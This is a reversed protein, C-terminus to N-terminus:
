KDIFRVMLFIKDVVDLRIGDDKEKAESLLLLYIELKKIFFIIEAWKEWWRRTKAHRFHSMLVYM